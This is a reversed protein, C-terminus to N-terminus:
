QNREIKFVEVEGRGNDVSLEKENIKQIRMQFLLKGEEDLIQMWQGSIKWNLLPGSMYKGREGLTASVSGDRHFLFYEIIRSSKLTLTLGPLDLDTWTKKESIEGGMTALNWGLLLNLIIILRM